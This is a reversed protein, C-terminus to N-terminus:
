VYSYTPVDNVSFSWRAKNVGSPCDFLIRDSRAEAHVKMTVKIDDLHHNHTQKYGCHQM